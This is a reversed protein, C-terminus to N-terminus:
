RRSGYPDVRAVHRARVWISPGAVRGLLPAQLITVPYSIEIEVAAGRALGGGVVRVRAPGPDLGQNGFAQAVARDVARTAEPGSTSRAAEFGAERVAAAAALATRHVDALVSLTWILPVLLLLGVLITEVVAQGSDRSARTM